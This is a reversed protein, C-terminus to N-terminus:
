EEIFELLKKHIDTQKMRKSCKDLYKEFYDLAEEETAPVNHRAKKAAIDDYSVAEDSDTSQNEDSTNEAYKTTDKSNKERTVRKEPEEESSSDVTQLQRGRSRGGSKGKTKGGKVVRTSRRSSSRSATEALKRKSSNRNPTALKRDNKKKDPQVYDDDMALSGTSFAALVQESQKLFKETRGVTPDCVFCTFTANDDDLIENAKKYGLWNKCIDISFAKGCNESDCPVLEGGEGTLFCFDLPDHNGDFNLYDHCDQCMVVKLQPHCDPITKKNFSCMSFCSYCVYQKTPSSKKLSKELNIDNDTQDIKDKQNFYSRSAKQFKKFNRYMSNKEREKKYDEDNEDDDDDQSHGNVKPKTKKELTAEEENFCVFCCFEKTEDDVFSDLEEKGCWKELCDLCYSKKCKSKDCAMLTGGEGCITCYLCKGNADYERWYKSDHWENNDENIHQKACSDCMSTKLDEHYLMNYDLLSVDQDMCVFCQFQNKHWTVQIDNKNTSSKERIARRSAKSNGRKRKVM